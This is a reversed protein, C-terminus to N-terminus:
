TIGDPHKTMLKVAYAEAKAETSFEPSVAKGDKEETQQAVFVVVHFDSSFQKKAVLLTQGTCENMFGGEHKLMKWGKIPKVKGEV